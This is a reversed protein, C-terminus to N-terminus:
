NSVGISQTKTTKLASLKYEDSTIDWILYAYETVLESSCEDWNVTPIKVLYLQEKEVEYEGTVFAQVAILYRRDNETEDNDYLWKDVEDDLKDASDHLWEESFIDSACEGKNEQIYKDLFQPVKVKPQEALQAVLRSVDGYANRLGREYDGSTNKSIRLANLASQSAEEAQNLHEILEQKNM